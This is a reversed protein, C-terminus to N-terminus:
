CIESTTAHINDFRGITLFPLLFCWMFRQLNSLRALPRMFILVGKKIISKPQLDPKTANLPGMPKRRSKLFGNVVSSMIISILLFQFGHVMQPQHMSNQSMAQRWEPHKNAQTFSAPEDLSSSTPPLHHNTTLYTVHNPFFKSCRTNDRHRTTMPHTTVLMPCPATSPAPTLSDFASTETTSLGAFSSLSLSLQVPPSGLLSVRTTNQMPAPDAAVPPPRAPLRLRTSYTLLPNAVVRIQFQFQALQFRLHLPLPIQQQLQLVRFKTSHDLHPRHNLPLCLNVLPHHFIVQPQLTPTKINCRMPVLLNPYCLFGFKDIWCGLNKLSLIKCSLHLLLFNLKMSVFM